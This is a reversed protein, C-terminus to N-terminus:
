EHIRETRSLIFHMVLKRAGSFYFARLFSEECGVPIVIGAMEFGNPASLILETVFKEEDAKFSHIM